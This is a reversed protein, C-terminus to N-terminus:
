KSGNGRKKRNEYETKWEGFRCFVIVDPVVCLRQRNRWQLYQLEIEKRATPMAKDGKVKLPCIFAVIDEKNTWKLVNCSKQNMIAEDAKYCLKLYNLDEKRRKELQDTQLQLERRQVFELVNKDLHYHRGEITLRGATLRRTINMLQERATTGTQRMAQNRQRAEQRDVETMIMGAVHRATVGSTFNIYNNNQNIENREYRIVPGFRVGNENQM